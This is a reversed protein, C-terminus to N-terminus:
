LRLSSYLQRNSDMAETVGDTCAFFADNSAMEVVSEQFEVVLSIELVPGHKERIPTVVQDSKRLFLFIIVRMTFHLQGVELDLIGVILAIFM